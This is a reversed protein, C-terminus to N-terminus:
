DGRAHDLGSEAGGAFEAALDVGVRPRRDSHERVVGIVTAALYDGLLVRGLEWLSNLDTERLFCRNYHCCMGEVWSVSHLARREGLETPLGGLRGVTGSGDLGRLRQLLGYALEVLEASV